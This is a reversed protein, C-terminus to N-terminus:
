QISKNQDKLRSLMEEFRNSQSESSCYLYNTFGNETNENLNEILLEFQINFSPQPNFYLDVAFHPTFFNQQALEVVTFDDAKQLFETSPVFMEEPALHKVNDGLKQFAETPKQCMKTLQDSVLHTNQ